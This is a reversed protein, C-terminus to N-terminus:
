GWDEWQKSVQEVNNQLFFFEFAARLEFGRENYYKAADELIEIFKLKIDCKYGDKVYDLVNNWEGSLENIKSWLLYSSTDSCNSVILLFKM